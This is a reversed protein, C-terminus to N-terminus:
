FQFYIFDLSRGPGIRLLISVLLLSTVGIIWAKQTAKDFALNYNTPGLIAIMLGLIIFDVNDNFRSPLPADNLIFMSNLITGALSIDEARFLVWGCIVFLFTLLWSFISPLRINLMCWYHFIFLATGHIIGWLVFSWGAGHWLGCLTMTIFIATIYRAQGERSGGLPIYLYDRLFTSLTIHWRRWFEQINKSSYPNNFNIPLKFGFLRGLGIAMDSYASFDFYIQLTYSMVSFWAFASSISDTGNAADFGADALPAFEDALFVKKFLGLTFLIIGRSINEHMDPRIPSISFQHIIQNHRVIPGAILQPFFSVYLLYEDFSYKKAQSRKLDILYSIQQFTFFSIGLPLIISFEKIELHTFESITTTFFNFYKFFGILLLNLIVGFYILLNRNKKLYFYATVWNLSISVILLPLFRIDWYGYFIFSAIILLKIRLAQTNIKYYSIVVIPLFILIFIQSSFLM